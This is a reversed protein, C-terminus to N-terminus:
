WRSVPTTPGSASRRRDGVLAFSADVSRRMGDVTQYAVPASQRLEEGSPTTIVLEGGDLALRGQGTFNLAIARPDAGPQVVFDYELQGDSGYFVGDIGPYLGEYRVEGYGPVGTVDGGGDGVYNSLGALAEGGRLRPEPNAGAFAMRVIEAAASQESAALSLVAEGPTLFLDYGPGRALFDVAPDTQGHNAEFRLPLRTLAGPDAAAAPADTGAGGRTTAPWLNGSPAVGVALVGAWLAVAVVLAVLGSSSPGGAGRLTAGPGSASCVVNM